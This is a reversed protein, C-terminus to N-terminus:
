VTPMSHKHLAAQGQLMHPQQARLQVTLMHSQQQQGQGQPGQQVATSGHVAAQPTSTGPGPGTPADRRCLRCAQYCPKLRPLLLLLLLLPPPLPSPLMQSRWMQRLHRAPAGLWVLAV